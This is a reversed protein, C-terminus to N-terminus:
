RGASARRRSRRDSPSSISRSGARRPRPAGLALDALHAPFSAALGLAIWPWAAGVLAARLALIMLAGPLLRLAAAAFPWRRARVLWVMEVLMVVLILDAAHGSAFLWGM